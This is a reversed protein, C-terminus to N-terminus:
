IFEISKINNNSYIDTFSISITYGYETYLVLLRDTIQIIACSVSKGIIDRSKTSTPTPNRSYKIKLVRGIYCKKLFERKWNAYIDEKYRIKESSIM